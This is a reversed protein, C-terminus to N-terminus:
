SRVVKQAGGSLPQWNNNAIMTILESAKEFQWDHANEYGFSKLLRAQKYTCLNRRRRDIFRRALSKQEDLTLRSLDIEAKELMKRQWDPLPTKGYTGQRPAPMSFVAFPNVTKKAYRVRADRYTARVELMAHQRREEDEAEVLARAEDWVALVDVGEGERALQKVKERVREDPEEDGMEGALVDAADVLNHRGSNGVFDLVRLRPKSSRAIAKKRDEVTMGDMLQCDFARTGRGIMQTYLTLSKTPRVMSVVDVRPADFGETAIGCNCFFQLRGDRLREVEQRRLEKDTQAHVVTASGPRITELVQSMMEAHAVDACFVLGSCGGAEELIPQAVKVATLEARMVASLEGQSLDGAFARVKSLDIEKVYISQQVIPVLWGQEIAWRMGRKYSCVDFVKGLSQGDKRLPTATVGVVKCDDSQRFYDIVRRYSPSTAHHAEDVIVLGFDDPDFRQYRATNGRTAILSQVSSIIPPPKSFMTADSRAMHEAMEIEPLVGTIAHIKEAAQWILEDRHAMVLVRKGHDEMIDDALLCFVVTKGLGTPLVILAAQNTQLANHTAHVAEYQYKRPIVACGGVGAGQDAVGEM